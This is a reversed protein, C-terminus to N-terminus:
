RSPVRRDKWTVDRRLLRRSASRAVVLVFVLVALPYVAALVPCFRGARRALVAFQVASLPYVWPTALWGGALSAVWAVTGAVAWWPGGAAGTAISRTWGRVLDRVGGPYMRFRIAPRGAHLWAGGVTRALEIDETHARRVGPAAHGGAREYVRRDVALVPGFAVVAPRARGPTFAGTGMLAVVNFPASLHEGASGPDHWPQVSVLEGPHRAVAAALRDLLDRPPQVDADVFALVPASTAGAGTWCAHPKGLWGAPLDPASVVTAGAARAVEATADRSHDDVVVVEDGPRAGALLARVLAGVAHAEERAPVIAAVAPRADGGAPPLPRTRWLLLWGCCWGVAFPGVELATRAADDVVVLNV